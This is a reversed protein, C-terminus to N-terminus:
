APRHGASCRLTAACRARPAVGDARRDARALEHPDLNTTLVIARETRTAPTSSRTSSSSCGRRARSPASTTSTCCTSPRSAPRAARQALGRRRRRLDRPAPRAPAAALLDRGLPGGDLAEASVLMALTTKGTGVDGVFWLGRGADLQQTSRRRRLERVARVSPRRRDADGAARDFRSARTARAPDRRRAQAGQPAAIRSRGAAATARAHADGRRRRLRLRRLPRRPLRAM